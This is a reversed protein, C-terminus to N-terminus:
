CSIFFFLLLSFCDIPYSFFQRFRNSTGKVRRWLDLIRADKHVYVLYEYLLLTSVVMSVFYLVITIIIGTVGSDETEMTRNYLKIFDGEFCPCNNATYNIKCNRNYSQCDYNHYALDVIFILPPDLIM